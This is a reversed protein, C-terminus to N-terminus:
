INRAGFLARGLRIVTAGEEIAVEYDDSMGMSLETWDASHSRRVHELLSRLIAFTGRLEREDAGLRAITMLGVGRLNDSALVSDALALLNTSSVGSKSGERTLNVQIFVPLKQGGSREACSKDLAQVLEVRDVSQICDFMDAAQRAKNRQLSGILHLTINSRAVKRDVIVESAEIDVRAFKEAAEQVRNEGFDTLGAEIAEKIRAVHMSKTVAILRVAQAERGSKKAAKAIRERVVALNLAIDGM